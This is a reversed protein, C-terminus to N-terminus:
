CFQKITYSAADMVKSKACRYLENDDHRINKIRQDNPL